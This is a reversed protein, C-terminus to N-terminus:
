KFVLLIIRILAIITVVFFVLVNIILITHITYFLDPLYCENVDYNTPYNEAKVIYYCNYFVVCFISMIIILLIIISFYNKKINSIYKKYCRKDDNSNRYDNYSWKVTSYISSSNIENNNDSTNNSDNNNEYTYDNDYTYYNDNNDNDFRMERIKNACKKHMVVIIQRNVISINNTLPTKETLIDNDNEYENLILNVSNSKDILGRCIACYEIMVAAIMRNENNEEMYTYDTPIDYSNM